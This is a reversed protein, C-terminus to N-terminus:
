SAQTATTTTAATRATMGTTTTTTATTRARANNSLNNGNNSNNTSNNDHEDNKRQQQQHQQLNRIGFRTIKNQQPTQINRTTVGNLWCRFCMWANVNWLTPRTGSVPSAGYPGGADCVNAHLNGCRVPRFCHLELVTSPPPWPPRVM